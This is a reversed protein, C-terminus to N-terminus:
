SALLDFDALFQLVKGLRGWYLVKWDWLMAQGLGEGNWWRLWLDALANM